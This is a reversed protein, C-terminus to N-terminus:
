AFFFHKEEIYYRIRVYIHKGDVTLFNEFYNNESVTDVAFIMGRLKEKDAVGKELAWVVGIELLFDSILGDSGITRTLGGVLMADSLAM